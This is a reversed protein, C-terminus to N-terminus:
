PDHRSGGSLRRRSFRWLAEEAQRLRFHRARSLASAAALPPGIRVAEDALEVHPANGTPM